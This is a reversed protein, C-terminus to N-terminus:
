MMDMKYKTYWDFGNVVADIKVMEHVLLV